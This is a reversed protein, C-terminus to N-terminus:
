QSDAGYLTFTIGQKVMEKSITENRKRIVRSDMKCFQQYVSAYHPRPIGDNQFLEDYFQSLYEYQNFVVGVGRRIFFSLKWQLGAFTM